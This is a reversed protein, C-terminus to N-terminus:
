QATAATPRLWRRSARAQPKAAAHEARLLMVRVTSIIVVSVYFVTYYAMSLAAGVVFYSIFSVQMMRGLHVAWGFEPKRRGLRIIRGSNVWGAIGIALFIGLGIPGQDGLVQFYISHAARPPREPVYRQFVARNETSGIGGGVLPRDMAVRMAYNWADFRGQVSADEQFNEISNIRDKWEQPMLMVAPVFSALLLVLTLLKSSSRLWFMFVTVSLALFGGRSYSGIVSIITLAMALVLVARILRSATTVRLYNMLPIVMCCAAALLNRDEIISEPPGLVTYAGGNVITFGGGKVGFYGISLVIVWILAQVRVQSRMVAMVVLAFVLSKIHLDWHFWSNSPALSTATTLTMWGMLLLILLTTANMPLRKPERSVVWAIFTVIVIILNLQLTYTFDWTLRHPSMIDIWGWTLVGVAPMTLSVVALVIFLMFLILSRM